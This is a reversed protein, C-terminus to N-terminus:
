PIVSTDNVLGEGKDCFSCIGIDAPVQVQQCESCLVLQAPLSTAVESREAAKYDLEVGDDLNDRSPITDGFATPYNQQSVTSGLPLPSAGM